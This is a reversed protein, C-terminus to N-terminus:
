NIAQSAIQTAKFRRGSDRVRESFGYGAIRRHERWLEQFTGEHGDRSNSSGAFSPLWGEAFGKYLGRPWVFWLGERQRSHGELPPTAVDVFRSSIITHNSGTDLILIAANGNVEARILMLGFSHSVQFPISEPNLSRSSAPIIGAVALAFALTCRSASKLPAMWRSNGTRIKPSSGWSGCDFISEKQANMGIVKTITM